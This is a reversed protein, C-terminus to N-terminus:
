VCIKELSSKETLHSLIFDWLDVCLKNQYFIESVVMASDLIELSQTVADRNNKQVLNMVSKLYDKMFKYVVRKRDGFCSLINVISRITISPINYIFMMGVQSGFRIM